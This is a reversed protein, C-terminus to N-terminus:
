LLKGNRWSQKVVVKNFVYLMSCEEFSRGAFGKAIPPPPLWTPRSLVRGLSTTLESNRVPNPAVANVAGRLDPDDLCALILAVLDDAHIWAFWQRGSGLRGGLGLRFLRGMLALAGGERALVVGIRLSVARVGHDEARRAEEEWDRCLEALFGHGPPAEEPLDEEGRDGYFGIASACVLVGPREAAPLEGLGAVLSRTSAIRSERVRALRAATPLGGFLPEGALHIAAVAGALASTPVQQGDWGVGELDRRGALREPHRTLVRPAVGREILARVLRGGVLGTGGSVLVPATAM